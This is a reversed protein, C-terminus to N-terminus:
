GVQESLTTCLVALVKHVWNGSQCPNKFNLSLFKDIMAFGFPFFAVMTFSTTPFTLPAM